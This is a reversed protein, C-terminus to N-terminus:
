SNGYVFVEAGVHLYVKGNHPDLSLTTGDKPVALRQVIRYVDAASQRIITVAGEVSGCYILRTLPDFLVADVSWELAITAVSTGTAEDVVELARNARGRFLLHNERDEVVASGVTMADQVVEAGVTVEAGRPIIPVTLLDRYGDGSLPFIFRGSFSYEQFRREKGKIFYNIAVMLLALVALIQFIKEM